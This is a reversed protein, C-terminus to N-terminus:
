SKRVANHYTCLARTFNPTQKFNNLRLFFREFYNPESPLIFKSHRKEFNQLPLLMLHLLISWLSFIAFIRWFENPTTLQNSFWLWIQSSILSIRKFTLRTIKIPRKKNIEPCLPLRMFLSGNKLKTKLTSQSMKKMTTTIFSKIHHSLKNKIWFVILYKQM